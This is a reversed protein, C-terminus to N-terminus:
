PLYASIGPGLWDDLAQSAAESVYHVDYFGLTMVAMLGDIIQAGGYLITALNIKFDPWLEKM